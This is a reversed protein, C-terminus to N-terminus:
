RHHWALSEAENLENMWAALVTRVGTVSLAPVVFRM